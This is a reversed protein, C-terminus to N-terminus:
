LGVAAMAGLPAGARACGAKRNRAGRAAEAGIAARGGTAVVNGHVCGDLLFAVHGVFSTCKM